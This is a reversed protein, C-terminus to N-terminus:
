HSYKFHLLFKHHPPQLHRPRHRLFMYNGKKAKTAMQGTSSCFKLEKNADDKM